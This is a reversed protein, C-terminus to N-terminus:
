DGLEVSNILDQADLLERLTIRNKACFKDVADLFDVGEVAKQVAKKILDQRYSAQKETM